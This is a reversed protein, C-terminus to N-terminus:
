SGLVSLPKTQCNKRSKATTQWEPDHCDNVGLDISFVGRPIVLARNIRRALRLCPAPNGKPDTDYHSNEPEEDAEKGFQERGGIWDTSNNIKQM